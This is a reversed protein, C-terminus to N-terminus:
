KNLGLLNKLNQNVQQLLLADIRGINGYILNKDITALKSLKILSDCKLGNKSTAIIILDFPDITKIQSSIFAVLIDNKGEYLVMAPRIKNGTLDTFPFPLLIIEGKKM